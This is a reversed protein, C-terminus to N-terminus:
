EQTTPFMIQLQQCDHVEGVENMVIEEIVKRDEIVQKIKVFEPCMSCQGLPSIHTEKMAENVKGITTGTGM